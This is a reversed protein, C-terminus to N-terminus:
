FRQAARLQTMNSQNGGNARGFTHHFGLSLGNRLYFDSGVSVSLVRRQEEDAAVFYSPGAPSDAYGLGVQQRRAFDRQYEVKLRPVARGFDAEYRYEANLGASLRETTLRQGQYRLSYPGAGTEAFADVQLTSADLRGYPNLRLEGFKLRYNASASSLWQTGSWSGQALAAVEAVSRDYDFKLHGVGALWNVQFNPSLRISGYSSAAAAGSSANSGDNKQGSRERGVGIGLGITMNDGFCRDAGFTISESSFGFADTRNGGLSGSGALGAIWTQYRECGPTQGTPVPADDAQIQAIRSQINEIQTSEFHRAAAAGARLTGVVNSQQSPDARTGVNITLVAPRSTGGVATAVYSLTDRGSFGPNPTYTVRTGSASATGNAPPTSVAVTLGTFTPGSVFPALDITGPTGYPVSLTAATATPAAATVTVSVVAPISTGGPGTATYSFSDSGVYNAPPTYSFGLGNVTAAGRTPASAIAISTATGGGLSAAIPNATSNAQVTAAVPNAVPAVVPANVTVIFPSDYNGSPAPSFSTYVVHISFSYTGPTTPTGVLTATSNVTAATTSLSLGPPLTGNTVTYSNSVTGTGVYTQSFPVGSVLTLTNTATTLTTQAAAMAPFLSLLGLLAWLWRHVAYTQIRTM